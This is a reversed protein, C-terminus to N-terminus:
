GRLDNRGDGVSDSRDRAIAGIVLVTGVVRTVITRTMFVGARSVVLALGAMRVLELAVVTAFSLGLLTCRVLPGGCRLPISRRENESEHGSENENRTGHDNQL